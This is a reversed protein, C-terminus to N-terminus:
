VSNAYRSNLKLLFLNLFSFINPLFRPVSVEPKRSSLTKIVAKSVKEGYRANYNEQHHLKYKYPYIISVYIGNQRLDKVFTDTSGSFVTKAIHNDPGFNMLTESEIASINVIHGSGRLQMHPLIENILLINKLGTLQKTQNLNDFPSDQWSSQLRPEGLYILFDIRAFHDLAALVLKKVSDEDSIEIQQTVVGVRFTDIKKELLRLKEKNKFGVVVHCGREALHYSLTSELDGSVGAIVAVRNHLRRNNM